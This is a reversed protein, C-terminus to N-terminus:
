EMIYFTPSVSHRPSRPPLARAVRGLDPVMSISPTDKKGDTKPPPPDVVAAHNLTHTLSYFVAYEPTLPLDAADASEAHACPVDCFALRGSNERVLKLIEPSASRERVPVNGFKSRFAPAEHTSIRRAPGPRIAIGNPESCPPLSRILRHSNTHLDICIGDFRRAQPQLLHTRRDSQSSTPALSTRMTSPKLPPRSIGISTAGRASPQADFPATSPRSAAQGIKRQGAEVTCYRSIRPTAQEVNTTDRLVATVNLRPGLDLPPLQPPKIPLAQSNGINGQSLPRSGHRLSLDGDRSAPSADVPSGPRLRTSWRRM